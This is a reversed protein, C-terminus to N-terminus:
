YISISLENKRKLITKLLEVTWKNKQTLIRSEVGIFLTSRIEIVRIEYSVAKDYTEADFITVTDM